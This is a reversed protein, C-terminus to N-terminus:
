CYEGLEIKRLVERVWNRGDFTDCLDVPKNETLAPIPTNLWEIATERDGWLNIAQTIVRFIDLVKESDRPSLLKKRYFRNLNSSSTNFLRIFLSRSILKAGVKVATGPIGRRVVRIYVARNTLADAPIQAEELFDDIPM